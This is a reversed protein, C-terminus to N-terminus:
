SVGVDSALTRVASEESPGEADFYGHDGGDLVAKWRGNGLQTTDFSGGWGDAMGSLEGKIANLSRDAM